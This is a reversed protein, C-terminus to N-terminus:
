KSSVAVVSIYVYQCVRAGRTARGIQQTIMALHCAAPEAHADLRDIGIKSRAQREVIRCTRQDRFHGGAARGLFGTDNCTIDDDLDVPFGHLIDARHAARLDSSCVDSSWDSSRM